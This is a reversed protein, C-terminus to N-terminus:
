PQEEKWKDQLRMVRNELEDRDMEWYELYEVDVLYARDNDHSSEYCEIRDRGILTADVSYGKGKYDFHVRENDTDIDEINLMIDPIFHNCM